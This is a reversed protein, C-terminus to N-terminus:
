YTEKKNQLCLTVHDSTGVIDTQCVYVIVCLVQCNYTFIIHLQASLSVIVFYFFSLIINNVDEKCIM